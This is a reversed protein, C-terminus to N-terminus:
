ELGRCAADIQDLVVIRLVFSYQININLINCVVSACSHICEKFLSFESIYARMLNKKKNM